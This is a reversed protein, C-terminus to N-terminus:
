VLRNLTYPTKIEDTICKTSQALTKALEVYELFKRISVYYCQTGGVCTAANEVIADIRAEPTQLKYNDYYTDLGLSATYGMLIERIRARRTDLAAVNEVDIYARYERFFATVLDGIQRQVETLLATKAAAFESRVAALQTATKQMFSDKVTCRIGMPLNECTVIDSTIRQYAPSRYGSLFGTDVYKSYAVIFDYIVVLTNYIDTSAALAGIATLYTGMIAVLKGVYSDPAAIQNNYATPSLSVAGAMTALDSATPATNAREPMTRGLVSPAAAQATYRADYIAVMKQLEVNVFTILQPLLCANDATCTPTSYASYFYTDRITAPNTDSTPTQPFKNPLMALGYEQGVAEYFTTYANRLATYQTIINVLATAIATGLAGIATETRPKIVEWYEITNSGGAPISLAGAPNNLHPFILSSFDTPVGVIHNYPLYANWYAVLKERAQGRAIYLRAGEVGLVIDLKPKYAPSNVGTGYFDDMLTKLTDWDTPMSTFNSYNNAISVGNEVITLDNTNYGYNDKAPKIINDFNDDYSQKFAKIYDFLRQRVEAFLTESKALQYTQCLGGNCTVSTANDAPIYGILKSVSLANLAATETLSGNNNMVYYEGPAIVQDTTPTLTAPPGNPFLNPQFMLYKAVFEGRAERVKNRAMKLINGQAAVRLVLAELGTTPDYYKNYMGSLESFALTDCASIDTYATSAITTDVLEPPVQKGPAYIDERNNGYVVLFNRIRTKMAERLVALLRACANPGASPGAAIDPDVPTGGIGSCTYEALIAELQDNNKSNLTTTPDLNGGDQKYYSNAGTNSVALDLDARVTSPLVYGKLITETYAMYNDKYYTIIAAAIKGRLAQTRLLPGIIEYLMADIRWYKDMLCKLSDDSAASVSSQDTYLYNTNTLYTSLTEPIGPMNLLASNTNLASSIASIKANIKARVDAKAATLGDKYRDELETLGGDSLDTFATTWNGGSFYTDLNQRLQPRTGYIPTYTNYSNLSADLSCSAPVSTFLEVFNLYEMMALLAQGRLRNTTQLDATTKAVVSVLGSPALYEDMIAALASAPASAIVAADDGVNWDKYEKRMTPPLARGLMDYLRGSPAFATPANAGSEYTASFDNVVRTLKTRVNAILNDTERKYDATVIRLQDENLGMFIQSVGREGNEGVPFHRDRLTAYQNEVSQVNIDQYVNWIQLFMMFMDLFALMAIYAEERRNARTLEGQITLTGPPGAVAAEAAEAAESPGLAVEPPVYGTYRNMIGIMTDVTVSVDNIAGLDAASTDTERRFQARQGAYIAAYAELYKALEVKVASMLTPMAGTSGVAVSELGYTGFMAGLAAVNDASYDAPVSDSAAGPRSAVTALTTIEVPVSDKFAAYRAALNRYKAIINTIKARMIGYLIVVDRKYGEYILKMDALSMTAASISSSPSSLGTISTQVASVNTTGIYSSTADYLSRFKNIANRTVREGLIGLMYTQRLVTDQICQLEQAAIGELSEPTQPNLAAAITIAPSWGIVATHLGSYASLLENIRSRVDGQVTTLAESYTGAIEDLTDDSAEYFQSMQNATLSVMRGKLTILASSPALTEVKLVPAYTFAAVLADPIQLASACPPKSGDFLEVFDLYALMAQMAAGRKAITTQFATRTQAQLAVLGATPATAAALYEDMLASLADVTTSPAGAADLDQQINTATYSRAITPPMPRGLIDFLRGTATFPAPADADRTYTTEYATIVDRLKTRIAAILDTRGTEYESKLAVLELNTLADFTATSTRAGSDPDVAINIYAQVGNAGIIQDRLLGLTKSGSGTQIPRLHDHILGFKYWVDSYNGMARLAEVRRTSTMVSGTLTQPAGAPAGAQAYSDMLAILTKANLAAAAPGPALAAKDATYAAPSYAVDQYALNNPDFYKAAFADVFTNLQGQVFGILGSMIGEYARYAAVTGAFDQAPLTPLAAAPLTTSLLQIETVQPVFANYRESLAAYDAARLQAMLPLYTNLLGSLRDVMRRINMTGSPATSISAIDSALNPAAVPAPSQQNTTQFGQLATLVAPRVTSVISAYAELYTAATTQITAADTGGLVALPQVTTGSTFTNYLERLTQYSTQWDTFLTPITYNTRICNATSPGLAGGSSILTTKATNYVTQITNADAGSQNMIYNGEGPVVYSMIADYRAKMDSVLCGGDVFLPSAANYLEFFALISQLAAQRKQLDTLTGQYNVTDAASPEGASVGSFESYNNILEILAYMTTTGAPAPALTTNLDTQLQDGITQGAAAINVSASPSFTITQLTSFANQAAQAYTRLQDRIFAILRDRRGTTPTLYTACSTGISADTAAATVDIAVVSLDAPIVAIAQVDSATAQFATYRQHLFTYENYVNELNARVGNRLITRANTYKSNWENVQAITLATPGDITAIDAANNSKAYSVNADSLTSAPVVFLENAGSNTLDNYTTRYAVIIARIAAELNVGMLTARRTLCYNVIEKFYDYQTARSNADVVKASSSVFDVPPTRLPPYLISGDTSITTSINTAGSYTYMVGLDTDSINNPDNILDLAGTTALVANKVKKYEGLTGPPLSVSTETGIQGRVTTMLSLWSSLCTDRAFIVDAISTHSGTVNITTSIDTLNGNSSNYQDILAKVTARLAKSIAKMVTELTTGSPATLTLGNFALTATLPDTLPLSIYRYATARTETIASDSAGIDGDTIYLRARTYTKNYFDNLRTRAETRISTQLTLINKGAVDATIPYSNAVTILQAVRTSGAPVSGLATDTSPDTSDPADGLSTFNIEPGAFTDYLTKYNNYRTQVATRVDSILTTQLTTAATDTTTYLQWLTNIVVGDPLPSLNWTLLGNAVSRGTAPNFSDITDFVTNYAVPDPSLFGTIYAARNNKYTAIATKANQTRTTLATPLISSAGFVNNLPNNVKVAPAPDNLSISAELNGLNNADAFAQLRSRIDNVANNLSTLIDECSIFNTTSPSIGVSLIPLTADISAVTKGVTERTAPSLIENTIYSRSPIYVQHRFVAVYGNTGYLNDRIHADITATNYTTFYGALTAIDTTSNVVAVTPPDATDRIATSTIVSAFTNKRTSFVDTVRNVENRIATLADFYPGSAATTDVYMANLIAMQSFTSGTGFDWPGAGTMTDLRDTATRDSVTFGETTNKQSRITTDSMDSTGLMGGFYSQNGMPGSLSIDNLRKILAQKDSPNNKSYTKQSSGMLWEWPYSWNADAM